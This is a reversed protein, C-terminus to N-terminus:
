RASWQTMQCCDVPADRGLSTACLIDCGLVESPRSTSLRQVLNSM